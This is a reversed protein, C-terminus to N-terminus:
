EAAWALLEKVSDFEFIPIHSEMCFDIAEKVSAFPMFFSLRASPHQTIYDFYLFNCRESPKNEQMQICFKQNGLVNIGGYFKTNPDIDNLLVIDRDVSKAIKRKM